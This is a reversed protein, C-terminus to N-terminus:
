KRRQPGYSPLANLKRFAMAMGGPWGRGGHRIRCGAPDANEERTATILAAKASPLSRRIAATAVVGGGGPMRRDALLRLSRRGQM